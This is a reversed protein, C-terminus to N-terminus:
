SMSAAWALWGTGSKSDARPRQGGVPDGPTADSPAMAGGAPLLRLGSKRHYGSLAADM